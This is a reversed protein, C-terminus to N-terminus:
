TLQEDVYRKKIAQWIQAPHRHLGATVLWGVTVIVLLAACISKARYASYAAHSVPLFMAHSVGLVLTSAVLAFIAGGVAWGFWNRGARRAMAGFWVATGLAFLWSTVTSM